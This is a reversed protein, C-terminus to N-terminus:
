RLGSDLFAEDYALTVCVDLAGLEESDDGVVAVDVAELEGTETAGGARDFARAVAAPEFLEGVSEHVGVQRTM